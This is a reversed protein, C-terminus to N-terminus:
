QCYLSNSRLTTVRLVPTGWEKFQLGWTPDSESMAGILGAHATNGVLDQQTHIQCTEKLAM